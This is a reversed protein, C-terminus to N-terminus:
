DVKWIRVHGDFHASALWDGGRSWAIDVLGENGADYRAELRKGPKGSTPDILQVWGQRGGAALMAGDPSYAVAYLKTDGKWEFRQKDPAEFVRAESTKSVTALHRGDPSWALAGVFWDHAKLTSLAQGSAPDWYRVFGDSDGSALQKGDPRFALALVDGTHGEFTHLPAGDPISWLRVRAGRGGSALRKGDASFVLRGVRKEHGELTATTKGTALDVLLVRHRRAVAALKGDPTLALANLGDVAHHAMQKRIAPDWVRIGDGSCSVVRGDPTFAVGMVSRPHGELRITEAAEATVALLVFSALACRM